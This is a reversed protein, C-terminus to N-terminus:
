GRANKRLIEEKVINAVAVSAEGSTPYFKPSIKEILSFRPYRALASNTEKV